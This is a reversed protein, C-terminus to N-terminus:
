TSVVIPWICWQLNILSGQDVITFNKVNFGDFSTPNKLKEALHFKYLEHEGRYVWISDEDYEPLILKGMRHNIYASKVNSRLVNVEGNGLSDDLVSYIKRQSTDSVVILNPNSFAIGTPDVGPITYENLLIWDEKSPFRSEVEVEKIAPTMDMGKKPGDKKSGTDSVCSSIIFAFLLLSSYKM